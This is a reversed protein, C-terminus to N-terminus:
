IMYSQWLGMNTPFGWNMEKYAAASLAEGLNHLDYTTISGAANVSRSANLVSQWLVRKEGRSLTYLQGAAATKYERILVL